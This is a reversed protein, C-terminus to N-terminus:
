FSDDMESKEPSRAGSGCALDAATSRSLYRGPRSAIARASEDSASQRQKGSCFPGKITQNLDMQM